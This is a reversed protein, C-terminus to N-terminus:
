LLFIVKQGRVEIIEETRGLWVKAVRIYFKGTCSPFFIGVLLTFSTWMDTTIFGFKPLGGLNYESEKSSYFYFPLHKLQNNYAYNYKLKLLSFDINSTRQLFFNYFSLYM